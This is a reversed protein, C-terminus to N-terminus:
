EHIETPRRVNRLPKAVVKAVLDAFADPHSVHAGHGAGELVVLQLPANVIAAASERGARQQHASSLTGCGVVTPAVISSPEWPQTRGGLSGLDALLAQGESPSM